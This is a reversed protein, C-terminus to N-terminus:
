NYIPEDWYQLISLIIYEKGLTKKPIYEIKEPTNYEIKEPTNYEIKEPTNYEIKEPTNYEIKQIELVPYEIKQIELVPPNSPLTLETMKRGTKNKKSIKELCNVPRGRKMGSSFFVSCLIFSICLIPALKKSSM